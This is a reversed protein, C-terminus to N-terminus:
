EVTKKGMLLETKSEVNWFCALLLLIGSLVCPVWWYLTIFTNIVQFTQTGSEAVYGCLSLSWLVIASGLGSGIKCGFSNASAALGEVRVGDKAEIYRVMDPALTFLQSMVVASGLGKIMVGIFGAIFSYPFISGVINGLLVCSIAIVLTKKKSIKKVLFPTCLLGIGMTIMPVSGFLSFYNVNGLVYQAYYKGISTVSLSIYYNIGFMLVAMYFYKSRLLAKLGKKLDEKSQHVKAQHVIEKKEKVKLFCFLQGIFALAALIIVFITWSSQTTDGGLMNLIPIAIACVLSGVSTFVSNITCINSQDNADNSICPLLTNFSVNNMTYFVVTFLFYFISIAIIANTKDLGSVFFILFFVITLPIISIGYWLRAKGVSSNTKEIILGMIIDSFGDFLRCVLIVTGLISLLRDGPQICETVYITVYTGIFAWLIYSGMNGFAYFIKEKLTAKIKEM